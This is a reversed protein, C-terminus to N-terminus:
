HLIIYVCICTYVFIYCLNYLMCIYEYMYTCMTIIIDTFARAFDHVQEPSNNIGDLLTYEFSVRRGTSQARRCALTDAVALVMFPVPVAAVM